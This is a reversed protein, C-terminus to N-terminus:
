EQYPLLASEDRKLRLGAEECLRLVEKKAVKIDEPPGEPLEGEQFDILVLKAGSRMQSQITKLWALKQPVHLLVDCVFVCDADPPLGPDDPKGVQARVNPWEGTLVKRHVHRVMEPQSDIAIVKGKPVAKSLRFTFYGSGCGLDVVTESGELKLARVVAEPKQWKARDPRELFEVYKEVEEFPKLKTKDIGAKQLPCEIPPLDEAVATADSSFWVTLALISTASRLFLYRTRRKSIM